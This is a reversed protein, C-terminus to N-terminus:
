FLIKVGLEVSFSSGMFTAETNPAGYYRNITFSYTIDTLAPNYNLGAKITGSHDVLNSIANLTLTLDPDFFQKFSSFVAMYYKSNMYPQYFDRVYITKQGPDTDLIQQFINRDYGASNYYFEGTVNIGDKVAGKDFYKTFGLSTKLNYNDPENQSTLTSYDFIKRQDDAPYAGVEGRWDVDGIRGTFDYGYVPKYGNGAVISLSMETNGLLFEYKGAWTIEDANSADNMGAFLYLNRKVGWPITIKEGTTGAVVKDLNFFSKKDMNILDTPNWFYGTGWKLVQKGSRFYIKNKWNSDILFENLTLATYEDSDAALNYKEKQAATLAPWYTAGFSLFGKIGQQLRIDVFFDAEIQNELELQDNDADGTWSEDATQHHLYNYDSTVNIQGSFGIHKAQLEDGTQENLVRDPAVMADEGSFLSNEDIPEDACVTGSRSFLLVSVCAACIIWDLMRKM